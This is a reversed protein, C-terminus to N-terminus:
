EGSVIESVIAEQWRQKCHEVDFLKQGSNQLEVSRVRLYEKGDSAITFQSILSCIQHVNMSPTSRYPEGILDSSTKFM